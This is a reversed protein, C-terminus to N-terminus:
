FLIEFKSIYFPLRYAGNIRIYNLYCLYVEPINLEPIDISRDIITGKGHTGVNVNNINTKNNYLNIVQYVYTDSDKYIYISFADNSGSVNSLYVGRINVTKPVKPLKLVFSHDNFKINQNVSGYDPYRIAVGSTDSYYYESKDLNDIYLYSGFKSRLLNVYSEKTTCALIERETIIIDPSHLSKVMNASFGPIYMPLAM